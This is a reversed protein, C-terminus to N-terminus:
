QQTASFIYIIRCHSSHRFLIPSRVSLFSKLRRAYSMCMRMSACSLLGCLGHTPGTRKQTPEQCPKPIDSAQPLALCPLTADTCLGLIRWSVSSAGQAYSTNTTPLLFLKIGSSTAFNQLMAVYMLASKLTCRNTQDPLGRCKQEARKM